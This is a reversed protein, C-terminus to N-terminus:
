MAVEHLLIELLLLICIYTHSQRHIEICKPCDNIQYFKSEIHYYTYQLILNMLKNCGKVNVNKDLLHKSFSEDM